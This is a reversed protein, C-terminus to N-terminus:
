ELLSVRIMKIIDGITRSVKSQSTGTIKAIEQQSYGALNMIVWARVHKPTRMDYDEDIAMNVMDIFEQEPSPRRM